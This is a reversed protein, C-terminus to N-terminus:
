RRVQNLFTQILTVAALAEKRHVGDYNLNLEINPLIFFKIGYYVSYRGSPIDCVHVDSILNLNYKKTSKKILRRVWITMENTPLYLKITLIVFGYLLYCIWYLCGGGVGIITFIYKSDYAHIVGVIAIGYIFGCTILLIITKIWSSSHRFTLEESNNKIIKFFM